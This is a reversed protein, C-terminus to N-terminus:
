GDHQHEQRWSELETVQQVARALQDKAHQLSERAMRYDRRLHDIQEEYIHTKVEDRHMSSLERGFQESAQRQQKLDQEFCIMDKAIAQRERQLTEVRSEAHRLSDSKDRLNQRLRDTALNTDRLTTELSEVRAHAAEIEQRIDDNMEQRTMQSQLDDYADLQVALDQELQRLRKSSQQKDQELREVQEALASSERRAEWLEAEAEDEMRAIESRFSDVEAQRKLNVESLLDQVRQNDRHLRARESALDAKLEEM